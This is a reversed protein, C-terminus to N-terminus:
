YELFNSITKVDNMRFPVHFMKYDHWFLRTFKTGLITRIEISREQIYGIVNQLITNISCNEGGIEWQEQEGWGNQVPM